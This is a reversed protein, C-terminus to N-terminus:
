SARSVISFTCYRTITQYGDDWFDDSTSLYRACTLTYGDTGVVHEASLLIDIVRELISDIRSYDGRDDHAWISLSQSGRKEFSVTKTEWRIVVFPKVDPNDVTNTQYVTAPQIGLANLVGDHTLLYYVAARSM